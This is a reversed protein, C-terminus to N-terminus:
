FPKCNCRHPTIDTAFWRLSLVRLSGDAIMSDIARSFKDRLDPDSKRLAVAVGDGFLDDQGFEPGARVLAQFGPREGAVALETTPAMVADLRGQLLDQAAADSTPYASVTAVDALYTELFRLDATGTEAGIRRGRLIQRLAEIAAQADAPTVKLSLSKGTGPLDALSGSRALAFGHRPVAYAESFAVIAAFAPTDPLRAMAADTKGALLGALIRDRDEDIITCHIAMRRCLEKALVQEFGGFARDGASAADGGTSAIALTLESWDKAARSEGSAVALLAGIALGIVARRCAGKTSLFKM